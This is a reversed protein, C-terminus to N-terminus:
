CIDYTEPTVDGSREDGGIGASALSLTPSSSDFESIDSPQSSPVSLSVSSSVSSSM